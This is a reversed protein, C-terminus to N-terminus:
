GEVESMNYDSGNCTAYNNHKNRHYDLMVAGAEIRYTVMSDCVPCRKRPQQVEGAIVAANNLPGTQRKGNM